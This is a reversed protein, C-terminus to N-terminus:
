NCTDLFSFNIGLEKLRILAERLILIQAHIKNKADYSRLIVKCYGSPECFFACTGFWAINKDKVIGIILMGFILSLDTSNTNQVTPHQNSILTNSTPQSTILGFQGYFWLVEPSSLELKSLWDHIWDKISPNEQPTGSSNTPLQQM